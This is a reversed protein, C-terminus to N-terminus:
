FRGSLTLMASRPGERHQRYDLGILTAGGGLAVVGASLTVVGTIMTDFQRACLRQGPVPDPDCVARGDFAWLTAGAIVAALGAGLLVIGALRLPHRRPPPPPPPAKSSGDPLWGDPPPEPVQAQRAKEREAELERRVEAAYGETEKQLPSGPAERLFREYLDLAKPLHGAKRHAQALNFLLLPEQRAMYAAEFEGIAKQYEGVKFLARAQEYHEKFAQADAAGAAHGPHFSGHSLLAVFALIVVSACRNM